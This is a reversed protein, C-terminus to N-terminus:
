GHPEKGQVGLQPHAELALRSEAVQSSARDYIIALDM